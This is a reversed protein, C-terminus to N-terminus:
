LDLGEGGGEEHAGGVAGRGHAVHDGRQLVPQAGKQRDRAVVLDDQTVAAGGSEPVHGARAEDRRARREAGPTCEARLEGGLGGVCRVESGGENVLGRM